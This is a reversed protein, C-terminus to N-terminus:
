RGSVFDGPMASPWSCKLNRTITSTVALHFVRALDYKLKEVQGGMSRSCTPKHGGRM